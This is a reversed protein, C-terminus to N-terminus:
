LKEFNHNKLIEMTHRHLIMYEFFALRTKKYIYIYLFSFYVSIGKSKFTWNGCQPPRYTFLLFTKRYFQDDQQRLFGRECSHFQLQLQVLSDGSLVSSVNNLGEASNSRRWYFAWILFYKDWFLDANEHPIRGRIHTHTYVGQVDMSVLTNILKSLTRGASM